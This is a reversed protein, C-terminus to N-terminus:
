PASRVAPGRRRASKGAHVVVAVGDTVLHQGAARGDARGVALLDPRHPTHEVVRALVDEVPDHDVRWAPAAEDVGRLDRADVLAGDHQGEGGHLRGGEWLLARGHGVAHAVRRGHAPGAPDAAAQALAPVPASRFAGPRPHRPRWGPVRPAFGIRFSLVGIIWRMSRSPTWNGGGVSGSGSPAAATWSSMPPRKPSIDVNM